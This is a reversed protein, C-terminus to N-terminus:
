ARVRSGANWIRRSDLPTGAPELGCGVTLYEPIGGALLWQPSVFGHHSYKCWPFCCILIKTKIRKVKKKEGSLWNGADWKTMRSESGM